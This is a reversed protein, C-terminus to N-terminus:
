RTARGRRPRAPVYKVVRYECSDSRESNRADWTAEGRKEYASRGFVATWEGNHWAPRETSKFRWEVVWIPRM